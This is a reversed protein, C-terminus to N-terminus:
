PSHPCVPDEAHAEAEAEWVDRFLMGQPTEPKQGPSLKRSKREWKHFRICIKINKCYKGILFVFGSM